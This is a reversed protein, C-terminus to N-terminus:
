GWYFHFKKNPNCVAVTAQGEYNPSKFSIGGKPLNRIRKTIPDGKEIFNGKEDRKIQVWRYTPDFDNDDEPASCTEWSLEVLKVSSKTKGVLKYFDAMGWWSCKFVTGLELDDITNIEKKEM